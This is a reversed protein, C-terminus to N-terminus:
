DLEYPNLFNNMVVDHDKPYDYATWAEYGEIIEACDADSLTEMLRRSKEIIDVPKNPVRIVYEELKRASPFLIKNEM